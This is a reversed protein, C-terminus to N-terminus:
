ITSDFREYTSRTRQNLFFFWNIKDITLFLLIIYMRVIGATNRHSRQPKKRFGTCSFRKFLM